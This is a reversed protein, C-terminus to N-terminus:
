TRRGMKVPVVVREGDRYVVVNLLKGAASLNICSDLGSPTRVPKGDFEVVVDGQKLGALDAPRNPYLEGLRVGYIKTGEVAVRKTDDSDIGLLGREKPLFADEDYANSAVTTLTTRRTEGDRLYVVEVTKGIPTERLLGRLDDEGHVSTGDYTTVIDGDVLGAKEAPSGPMAGEILAGVGEYDAFDEAGFFSRPPPPPPNIRRAINARVNDRVSRIVTRGALAGGIIAVLVILWVLMWGKGKRKQTPRAPVPAILTTQAGPASMTQNPQGFANMTPTGDLRVTEVYEAMGEGLRYGCMRCFRMGRLFPAHCSPCSITESEGKSAGGTKREARETETEM